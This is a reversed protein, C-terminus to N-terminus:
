RGLAKRAGGSLSALPVLQAVQLMLAVDENRLPSDHVSFRKIRDREAAAIDGFATYNSNISNADPTVAKLLLPSKVEVVAFDIPWLRGSEGRYEYESAITHEPVIEALTDHIRKRLESVKRHLVRASTEASAQAAGNAVALIASFLWEKDPVDAVLSSENAMLGFRNCAKKLSTEFAAEDRGHIFASRAADGADTVRFGDGYKSIHVAVRDFSPYYCHTEFRVGYETTQCLDNKAFLNRLEDCNM